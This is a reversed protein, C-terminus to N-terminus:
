DHFFAGVIARVSRFSPMVIEEDELRRNLRSEVYGILALIHISDILGNAFLPTDADIVLGKENEPDFRSRIFDILDREAISPAYTATHNQMYTATHNQM